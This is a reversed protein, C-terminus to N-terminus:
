LKGIKRIFINSPIIYNNVDVGYKEIWRSEINATISLDIYPRFLGNDEDVMFVRCYESNSDVTKKEYIAKLREINKTSLDGFGNISINSEYTRMDKGTLNVYSVLTQIILLKKKPTMNSGMNGIIGIM